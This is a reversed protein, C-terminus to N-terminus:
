MGLVEFHISWISFCHTWRPIEYMNASTYNLLQLINSPNSKESKKKDEQLQEMDDHWEMDNVMYWWYDGTIVM